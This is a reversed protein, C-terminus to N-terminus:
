KTVKEKKLLDMKEKLKEIVMPEGSALKDAYKALFIPDRSGVGDKYRKLM